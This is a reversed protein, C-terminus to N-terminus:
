RDGSPPPPGEAPRTGSPAPRAPSEPAPSRREMPPAEFPREPPPEVPAPLAPDVAQPADAPPRAPVDAPRGAQLRALERQEALDRREAHLEEPSAASRRVALFMFYFVALMASFMASFALPGILDEPSALRGHAYDWLEGPRTFVEWSNWRLFRGIFIGVGGVTIAAWVVVWGAFFGFAGRVLTHVLYLSAVALYLGCLSFAMFIGIQYWSDIGLWSLYMFDTIMYPANPFFALWVPLPLVLLWRRWRTWARMAVAWLAALYPVWALALNVHLRPGYWGSRLWEAALLSLALLSAALLPYFMRPVLWRHLRM